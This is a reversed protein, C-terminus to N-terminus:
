KPVNCTFCPRLEWNNSRLFTHNLLCPQYSQLLSIGFLLIWTQSWCLSCLIWFPPPFYLEPFQIQQQTTSHKGLTLVELVLLHTNINTHNVPGTTIIKLALVVKLINALLCQHEQRLSQNLSSQSNPITFQSIVKSNRFLPQVMIDKISTTQFLDKAKFTAQTASLTPSETFSQAQCLLLSSFHTSHKLTPKSFYNQPHTPISQKLSALCHQHWLYM